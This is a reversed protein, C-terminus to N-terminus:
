RLRPGLLEYVDRRHGIKVIVVEQARIHYIVRYDGVRLRWLAKLSHRLPKGFRAPELALRYEIARRIRERADRPLPPLDCAAVEPQYLLAYTM